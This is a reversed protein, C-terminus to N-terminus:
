LYIVLSSRLLIKLNKSKSILTEKCAEDCKSLKVKIWCFVMSRPFEQIFENIAAYQKLFAVVIVAPFSFSVFVLSLKGFKEM